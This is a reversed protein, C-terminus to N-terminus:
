NGRTASFFRYAYVFGIQIVEGLRGALGGSSDSLRREQEGLVTNPPLSVLVYETPEPAPATAPTREGSSIRVPVPAHTGTDPPENATAPPVVPETRARAQLSTPHLPYATRANTAGVHAGGTGGGGDTCTSCVRHALPVFENATETLGVDGVSILIPVPPHVEYVPVVTLAPLRIATDARARAQEGPPHLPYAEDVAGPGVHVTPPPPPEGNQGRERTRIRAALRAAGSEPGRQHVHGVPESLELPRAYTTSTRNRPGDFSSGFWELM